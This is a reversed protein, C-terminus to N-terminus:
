CAKVLCLQVIEQRANMVVAVINIVSSGREEYYAMVVVEGAYDIM